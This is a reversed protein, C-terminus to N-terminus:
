VLQKERKIWYLSGSGYMQRKSKCYIDGFDFTKVKSSTQNLIFSDGVRSQISTVPMWTTWHPPLHPISSNLGLILKGTLITWCPSVRKFQPCWPISTFFSRRHTCQAWSLEWDHITRYHHPQTLKISHMLWLFPERRQDPDERTEDVLMFVFHCPLLGIFNIDFEHLVISSNVLIRSSM